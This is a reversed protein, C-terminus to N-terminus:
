RKDVNVGVRLTVTDLAGFTVGSGIYLRKLDYGAVDKIAKSGFTAAQGEPLRVGVALLAARVAARTTDDGVVEGVTRAGTPLAVRYGRAALAAHLMDLSTSAGVTVSLNAADLVITAQGRDVTTPTGRGNAWEGTRGCAWVGRLAAGFLPLAPEDVGAPPLLVGPNLLGLPDLAGKVARLAALEVRGFYEAMDGLKESGVGHEGTITGGLALAAAAVEREAVVM